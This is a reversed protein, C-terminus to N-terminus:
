GATQLKAGGRSLISDAITAPRPKPGEFMGLLPMIV